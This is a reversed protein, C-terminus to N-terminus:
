VAEKGGIAREARRAIGASWTVAMDKSAARLREMGSSRLTNFSFTLKSYVLNWVM